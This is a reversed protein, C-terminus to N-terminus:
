GDYEALGLTVLAEEWEDAMCFASEVSAHDRYQLAYSYASAHDTPMKENRWEARPDAPSSFLTPNKKPVILPKESSFKVQFFLTPSGKSNKNGIM